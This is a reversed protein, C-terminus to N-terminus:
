YAKILLSFFSALNSVNLLLSKHSRFDDLLLQEIKFYRVSLRMVIDPLYLRVRQESFHFFYVM